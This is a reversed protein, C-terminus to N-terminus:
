YVPVYINIYIFTVHDAQQCFNFAVITKKKLYM